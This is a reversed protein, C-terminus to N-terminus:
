SDKGVDKDASEIKKRRKIFLFFYTILLVITVALLLQILMKDLELNVYMDKMYLGGQRSYVDGEVIEARFEPYKEELHHGLIGLAGEVQLFGKISLLM